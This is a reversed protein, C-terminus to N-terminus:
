ELPLDPFIPKEEKKPEEEKKIEIYENSSRAIIANLLENQQRSFALQQLYLLVCLAIIVLFLIYIM